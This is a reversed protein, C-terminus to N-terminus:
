KVRAGKVFKPIYGHHGIKGSPNPERAWDSQKAKRRDRRAQIKHTKNTM